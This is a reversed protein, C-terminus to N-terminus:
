SLWFHANIILSGLPHFGPWFSSALVVDVVAGDQEEPVGMRLSRKSVWVVSLGCVIGRTCCLSLLVSLNDIVDALVIICGVEQRPPAVGTM